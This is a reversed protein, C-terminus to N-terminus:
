KKTKNIIEDIKNIVFSNFDSHEIFPILDKKGKFSKGILFVLGEEKSSHERIRSNAAGFIGNIRPKLKSHCESQYSDDLIANLIENSSRTDTIAVKAIGYDERFWYVIYDDICVKGVKTDFYSQFEQISNVKEKYLTGVTQIQTIINNDRTLLFHYGFGIYDRLRILTAQLSVQAENYIENILFEVSNNHEEVKKILWKHPMLIEAAFLNAEREVIEIDESIFEDTSNPNCAISGLHWPIIVHGLEHAITFRKRNEAQKTHVIIKPKELVSQICLGDVGLPLEEEYYSAYRKSLEIIDIPPTFASKSIVRQAIKKVREKNM